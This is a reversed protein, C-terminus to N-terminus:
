VLTLFKYLLPIYTNPTYFKHIFITIRLMRASMSCFFSQFGRRQQTEERISELINLAYMGEDSCVRMCAERQFSGNTMVGVRCCM